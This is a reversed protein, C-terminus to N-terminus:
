YGRRRRERDDLDEPEIRRFRRRLYVLAKARLEPAEVQAEPNGNSNILYAPYLDVRDIEKLYARARLVVGKEEFFYELFNYRRELRDGFWMDDCGHIIRAPEIPDPPSQHFPAAPSAPKRKPKKHTM